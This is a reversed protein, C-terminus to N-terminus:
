SGLVADYIAVINELPTDNQLANSPCVILGGGDGCDRVRELVERRVDATSGKPLTRQISLTGHMTLRDGYKRKFAVPDMCEPQIPNLLDAGIEIYDPVIESVDGDSHFLVKLDPKVKKWASVMEALVPKEIRRWADPKVLMRDQMALDGYVGIIDVGAQALRLGKEREYMAAREILERAFSEETLMDCLFNEFGRMHWAVKFPLNCRGFTAYRGRHVQVRERLTAVSDIGDASPWRFSDLDTTRVFPGDVWEDYLGDSGLRRVIGFMDEFAGDKHLIYRGGSSESSGRLEEAKADFAPNSMGISVSRLDIGLRRYLQEMDGSGLHAMLRKAVDRRAWFDMPVRDPQRHTVAALVRERSTM